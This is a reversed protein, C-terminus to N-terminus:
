KAKGSGHDEQKVTGNRLVHFYTKIGTYIPLIIIFTYIIWLHKIRSGEVINYIIGSVFWAVFFMIAASIIAQIRINM